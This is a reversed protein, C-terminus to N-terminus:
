LQSGHQDSDEAKDRKIEERNEATLFQIALKEEVAQRQM